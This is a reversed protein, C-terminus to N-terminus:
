DDARAAQSLPVAGAQMSEITAHAWTVVDPHTSRLVDFGADQHRNVTLFVTEGDILDVSCPVREGIRYYTTRDTGAEIAEWRERLAADETMTAAVEADAIVTVSPATGKRVAEGFTYMPLSIFTGLLSRCSDAAGVAGAVVRAAALPDAQETGVHESGALCQLDFDFWDVPLRNIVSPLAQGVAVTGLLRDFDRYVLAGFQTLTYANSSPDHEILSRETLDNLVRSLTVRTADTHAELDSRTRATGDLLALVGLRHESRALFAVTELTEGAIGCDDHPATCADTTDNM